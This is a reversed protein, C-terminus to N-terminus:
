GHQLNNIFDGEYISGSKLYLTGKGSRIQTGCIWEGEYHDGNALQM